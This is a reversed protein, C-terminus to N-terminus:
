ARRRAFVFATVGIAVLVALGVILGVPSGSSPTGPSSEAAAAASMEDSATPSPTASASDGRERQKADTDDKKRTDPESGNEGPTSGPDTSSGDGEDGGSQTGPSSSGGSGNENDRGEGGQGGQPQETPSTTPDSVSEGCETPPYGNIGCILGGESRLGAVTTLVAYGNADEPVVACSTIMSPPSEGDPADEPTGYDVVLGVRKQGEQAPTGKCLRNFSPSHRPSLASASDPSIAFRWGDVTGDAPRRAAGQTSFTWDSGGIWYSWFRYSTADARGSGWAGVLCAAVVLILAFTTARRMTLRLTTPRLTPNM